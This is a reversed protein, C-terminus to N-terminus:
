RRYTKYIITNPDNNIQSDLARSVEKLESIQQNKISTSIDARCHPCEETYRLRNSMVFTEHCYHCKMKSEINM